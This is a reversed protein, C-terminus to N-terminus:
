IVTVVAVESQGVDASCPARGGQHITVEDRGPVLTCDIMADSLLRREPM